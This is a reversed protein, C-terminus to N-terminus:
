CGADHLLVELILAAGCAVCVAAMAALAVTMFTRESMKEGM